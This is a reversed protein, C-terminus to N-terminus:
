HKQQNEDEFALVVTVFQFYSNQGKCFLASRQNSKSIVAQLCIEKRGVVWNNYM